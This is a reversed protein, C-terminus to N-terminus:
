AARFREAIYILHEFNAYVTRGRLLLGLKNAVGRSPTNEPRILVFVQEKELRLFAHDLCGRAGETAYGQRWFPRHIIYGLGIREVGDVVQDLLGVQGIPEGTEKHLALWYGHGHRQYSDQHRHIWDEAEARTYCRPWFRMVEPDALMTAVFDVDARVLERVILRQTELILKM